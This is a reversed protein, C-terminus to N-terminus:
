FSSFQTNTNIIKQLIKYKSLMYGVTYVFYLNFIRDSDFYGDCCMSLLKIFIFM